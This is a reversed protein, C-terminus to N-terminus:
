RSTSPVHSPSIDCPNQLALMARSSVTRDPHNVYQKIVDLATPEGSNELIVIGCVLALSDWEKKLRRDLYAVGDASHFANSAAVFRQLSQTQLADLDAGPMQAMSNPLVYEAYADVAHKFATDLSSSPAPPSVSNCGALLAFIVVACCKMM